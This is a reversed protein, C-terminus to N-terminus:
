QQEKLLQLAKDMAAIWGARFYMLMEQSDQKGMNQAFKRFEQEIDNM